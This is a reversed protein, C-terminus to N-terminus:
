ALFADHCGEVKPVELGVDRLDDTALKLYLQTSAAATHGLINGITRLSFGARLLRVACAHRFAHPGRKGPPRVGAKELRRAVLSYIGRRSLGQHPAAGGVFLSRVAGKRRGGRLYALVANGVHALLPFAAETKTKSHRVIFRDRRWDIDELRLNSVEGARLGYASLLSLIAFDRLGLPSRDHQTHSLVQEIEENSLASPIGEFAYLPPGSVSLALNRTILNQEHLFRLFDRMDHAILSRTKRGLHQMRGPFYADIDKLTLNCLNTSSTHAGLWAVFNQAQRCRSTITEPSLGRTGGLWDNYQDCIQQWARGEPDNPVQRPPWSGQVLSLFASIRRTSWRRWQIENVPSRGLRSRFRRLESRLYSQVDSARASGVERGLAQLHCVFRRATSTKRQIGQRYHGGALLHAEFRNLWQQGSLTEEVV